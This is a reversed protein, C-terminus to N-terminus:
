AKKQKGVEKQVPSLSAKNAENTRLDSSPVETSKGLEETLEHHLSVRADPERTKM